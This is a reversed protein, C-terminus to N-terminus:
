DRAPILGHSRVGHGNNLNRMRPFLGDGHAMTLGMRMPLVHFVAIAKSTRGGWTLLAPRLFAVDFYLEM